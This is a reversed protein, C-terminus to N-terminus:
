VLAFIIPTIVHGCQVVSVSKKKAPSKFFCDKLFSKKQQDSFLKM